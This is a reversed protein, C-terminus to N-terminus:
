RGTPRPPGDPVQRRSHYAATERLIAARLPIHGNGPPPFVMAAAMQDAEPRGVPKTFYYGQGLECGLDRVRELQDLEEIGEAVATMGLARAIETSAALVRAGSPSVGAQVVLSRDIKVADLPLERLCGISACGTGFDDLALKVGLRRLDYLVDGDALVHRAATNETIEFWVREAAVGSEDLAATIHAALDADRLQAGCLNISVAIPTDTEGVRNWQAAARCADLILKPTLLALAGSHEADHLFAAPGLVGRLPHCWRLLAEFAELRGDALSVIPQYELLFEDLQVGAILDAIEPRCRQRRRRPRGHGLGDHGHHLWRRHMAEITEPSGLGPRRGGGRTQTIRASDSSTTWVFSDNRGREPFSTADTTM